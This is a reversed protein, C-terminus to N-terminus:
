PKQNEEELFSEIDNCLRDWIQEQEHFSCGSLVKDPNNPSQLAAISKVKKFRCPSLIVSHIRVGETQANNLALPLETRMIFESALFAASILLIIDSAENIAKIIEDNWNNSSRLRRDDWLDINVDFAMAKLHYTLQELYTLNTHSYSVFIKSKKVQDVQTKPHETKTAPAPKEIEKPNVKKLSETFEHLVESLKFDGKLEAYCNGKRQTAMKLYKDKAQIQFGDKPNYFYITKLNDMGQLLKDTTIDSLPNHALWVTKLKPFAGSFLPLDQLNNGSLNLEELTELDAIEPALINLKNNALHLIKLHKLRKIQKPISVIKNNSLILIKLKPLEFLKAHIIRIENNSLDLMELHKLNTIEPPIRTICNNSLNLKYVRKENFIEKPFETLRKSRYDFAPKKFNM